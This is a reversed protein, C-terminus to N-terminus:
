NFDSMAPQAVASGSSALEPPSYVQLQPSASACGAVSCSRKFMLLLLLDNDGEADDLPAKVTIDNGPDDEEERGAFHSYHPFHAQM